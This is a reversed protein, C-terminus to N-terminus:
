LNMCDYIDEPTKPVHTLVKRGSATVAVDDEIRVGGMSLYHGVKTFDVAHKFKQRNKPDNLLAPIFYLGPEVTVVYNERLYFDARLNTKSPLKIYSDHVDLGLMHSVGHPFFLRHVKQELLDNESGKVLKLDILGRLIFREALSHIDSLKIDKKIAQICAEQTKLVIDYIDREKSTFRRGVPFTRTIDSAYGKYEAGADILLFDGKRIRRNNHHYHLVASQPGSAVISQYALHKIGMNLLEKEFIAQLQYEYMGPRAQKMVQIHAASAFRASSKMLSLEHQNKTMRMEKLILLLDTTNISHPKIHKHIFSKDHEFALCKKKNLSLRQAVKPFESVYYVQRFQYQLAAEKKSSQHGLWVAHAVSIDPIFLFSQKNTLLLWVDETNVGTLYLVDSYQRFPYDCDNNRTVHSRGRLFVFQHTLKSQLIQRNFSASSYPTQLDSSIM